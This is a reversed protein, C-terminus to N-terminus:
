LLNVSKITATIDLKLFLLEVIDITGRQIAYDMIINLKVDNNDILFKLINKLEYDIAYEAHHDNFKIINFKYLFEISLVHNRNMLDYFQSNIKFEKDNEYLMRIIEVPDDDMKCLENLYIRYQKIMTKIYNNIFYKEDIKERNSICLNLYEKRTCFTYVYDILDSSLKNM